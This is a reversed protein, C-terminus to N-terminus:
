PRLGGQLTLWLVVALLDRLREVARKVQMKVAAETSDIMGAIEEYRYGMLKLEMVRRARPTLAGLARDLDIALGTPAPDTSPPPLDDSLPVERVSYRGRYLDQLEFLAAKLTFPRLKAPDRLEDLGRDVRLLTNQVLDDVEDRLGIRRVFYGRLMPQLRELLTSRASRDGERARLVLTELAIGAASM